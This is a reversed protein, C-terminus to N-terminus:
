RWSCRDNCMPSIPYGTGLASKSADLRRLGSDPQVTVREEADATEKTRVYSNSGLRAPRAMM